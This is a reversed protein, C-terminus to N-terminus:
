HRSNGICNFYDYAKNGKKSLDFGYLRLLKSGEEHMQFAHNDHINM